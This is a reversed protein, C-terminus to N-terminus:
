IELNVIKDGIFIAFNIVFFVLSRILYDVLTLSKLDTKQLLFLILIPLIIMIIFERKSNNLSLSIDNEVQIQENLHHKSNLILERLDVGTSMALVLSDVFISAEDFDLKEKFSVLANEMSIGNDINSILRLLEKTILDNRGYYSVIEEQCDLLAQYFNKGSSVSANLIDLFNKFMTRKKIM